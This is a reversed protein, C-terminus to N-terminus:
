SLIPFNTQPEGGQEYRTGRRGEVDEIGEEGDCGSLNNLPGSSARSHLHHRLPVFAEKVHAGTEGWDPYRWWRVNVCTLTM